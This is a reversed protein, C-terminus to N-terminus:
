LNTINLNIIQDKGKEISTILSDLQKNLQEVISVPDVGKLTFGDNKLLYLITQLDKKSLYSHTFLNLACVARNYKDTLGSIELQILGTLYNQINNSESQHKNLQKQYETSKKIQDDLEKFSKANIKPGDADKVLNLIRRHNGRLKKRSEEIQNKLQPTKNKKM